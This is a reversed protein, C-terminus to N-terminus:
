LLVVTGNDRTCPCVRSGYPFEEGAADAFTWIHKRPPGHTLSYGCIYYSDIGESQFFFADPTGVQYGIIRGCVHSYEIGHVPFTTSM